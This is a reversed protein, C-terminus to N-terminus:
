ANSAPPALEKGDKLTQALDNLSFPKRFVHEVLRQLSATSVMSEGYGTSVFVRTEPSVRRLHHIVDRGSIGAM